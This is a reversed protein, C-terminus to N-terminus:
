ARAAAGPLTLRLPPGRGPAPARRTASAPPDGPAHPRGHRRPGAAPEVAPLGARDRHPAVGEGALHAPPGPRLRAARGRDLRAPRPRAGRHRLHPARRRARAGISRLVGIERRRELVSMTISGALGVMTIAVILFGLVTITTTLTRNRAVEDARSAYTLETAPQYGHATLADEVRTATRDIAGDDSSTTGISFDYGDAAGILRRMTTIPVFLVTGNEQLNAAIGVVRLEAPGAATTLRVRDGVAIGARRALDREIVAVGVRGREEAATYWRGDIVNHHFTTQHELGWLFADRDGIRVENKLVPEVADVGPVARIVSGSSVALPRGSSSWVAIDEGHEDWAGRTASDAAAALGMVALLTALAFGIQLVTAFSRRKRRGLSRLGIQASRPLAGVHRLVRDLAGRGGLESGTAEIAERASVRVGRRIAPIAALPPALLGIAVSVLVVRADVGVGIEVAFFQSCFFRVLANALLIGLPVGPITGLAGLVLATRFYIGAIQRRRGGIAKMVGIERMQEGVLATMTSSILVLATLLALVTFVYLLDSFRGLEAKGPWDGAARVEPLETFGRFGPDAELRRRVIALTREAAAPSTDRLRFALSSYGPEGSLAAVTRPTAYLVITGDFIVDQGADLNRGEGSVRLRAVSGDAAIVRAVDGAHARYRGRRGNQAETLVAGDGPASGSPVSVVDAEQHSFDRVGIIAADERRDGVYIRTAFWSRPEVAQVNPLRELAALRGPGLVLPRMSVTLDALRTTAVEHRMGRDALPPLAFIGVSAIAIALTAIASVARARRRTLDTITKRGIASLM